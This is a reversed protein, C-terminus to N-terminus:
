NLSRPSVQQETKVHANWKKLMELYRELNRRAEEFEEESEFGDFLCPHPKAVQEGKKKVMRFM